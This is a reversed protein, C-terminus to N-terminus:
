WISFVISYCRIVASVLYGEFIAALELVCCPAAPV